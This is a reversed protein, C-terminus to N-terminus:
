TGKPDGFRFKKGTVKESFPLSCVQSRCAAASLVCYFIGDNESLVVDQKEFLTLHKTPEFPGNKSCNCVSCKKDKVGTSHTMKDKTESTSGDMCTQKYEFWSLEHVLIPLLFSTLCKKCNDTITIRKYIYKKPPPEQLFCPVELSGSWTGQQLSTHDVFLACTLVFGEVARLLCSSFVYSFVSLCSWFSQLENKTPVRQNFSFGRCSRRLPIELTFVLRFRWIKATGEDCDVEGQKGRNVLDPALYIEFTYLKPFCCWFLTKPLLVLVFNHMDTLDFAENETTFIALSGIWCRSTVIVCKCLRSCSARAEIQLLFVVTSPLKSPFSTIEATNSSLFKIRWIKTKGSRCIVNFSSHICIFALVWLSYRIDWWRYHLSGHPTTDEFSAQTSKNGNGFMVLTISNQTSGTKFHLAIDVLCQETFSPIVSPMSKKGCHDLM